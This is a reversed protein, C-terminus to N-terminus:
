MHPVMPTNYALGSANLEQLIVDCFLIFTIPSLCCGQPVGCTTQFYQGNYKNTRVRCKTKAHIKKFLEITAEDIGEERFREYNKERPM